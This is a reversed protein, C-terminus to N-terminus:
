EYRLAKSPLVRNIYWTPVYLIFLSIMLVGANLILFQFISIEVPVYDVYYSAPDLHFIKFHKQIFYFGLGILNGWLMGQAVIYASRYLFIKGISRNTAGLAKLLGVMTTKEIILILLTSIMNIGAVLILLILIVVVNMDLLDLWNYIQPYLEKASFINLDFPIKRYIRNESEEMLAPNKLIIEVAGASNAEWGNLKVIVDLDGIIYSGDFEEMGTDYIGTVVFKRGRANKDNNNIFWVRLVSATDLLLKDAMMQSILVEYDSHRPKFHPLRGKILNNKLFTLDYNKDVGKLIIGHIQDKTKLVGGKLASFQVHKVNPFNKLKRIFPRTTDLPQEELSQNNDFPVIQLHATFGTVKEKISNKFGQVIAVSAIMVSLGLAISVVSIRIVPRSFSNEKSLALRKAIFQEFYM